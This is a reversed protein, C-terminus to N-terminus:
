LPSPDSSETNNTADTTSRRAIGPGWLRVQFQLDKAQKMGVAEADRRKEGTGFVAIAGCKETIDKSSNPHLPPDASSLPLSFLQSGGKGGREALGLGASTM